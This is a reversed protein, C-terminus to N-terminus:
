AMACAVSNWAALRQKQAPVPGIARHCAMSNGTARRFLGAEPEVADV